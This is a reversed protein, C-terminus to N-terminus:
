DGAMWLKGDWATWANSGSMLMLAGRQDEVSSDRSYVDLRSFAAGSAGNLIVEGRPMMDQRAVILRTGASGGNVLGEAAVLGDERRVVGFKTFGGPYQGWPAVFAGFDGPRYWSNLTYADATPYVMGYLSIWASSTTGSKWYLQTPVVSMFGFSDASATTHHTQLTSGLGSAFQIVPHNDGPTTGGKILGRWWVFGYPDKWYAANAYVSGYSSWGNLFSSGSGAAGVETWTAVGAAPFAIGDLTFISGAGWGGRVLVDGNPKITVTRPGSSHWVGWIGEQDPRHGPPLNYVPTDPTVTGYGALGSLVVIGSILRRSRPMTWRNQPVQNKMNYDVWGNLPTLAVSGGYQSDGAHGFIRWNGGDRVMTVVRNGEPKWDGYWEYTETSLGGGSLFRVKAPGPGIYLPDLVALQFTDGLVFQLTAPTVARLNDIGAAAETPTAIEIIGPMTDTAQDMSGTIPWEVLNSPATSTASDLALTARWRSQDEYTANATYTVFLGWVEYLYTGMKRTFIRISGPTVQDLGYGWARVTIVDALRQTVHVLVSARKPSGIGGVGAVYFQAHAGNSDNLGDLVALRVYMNTPVLGTPIPFVASDGKAGKVSGANFSSGDERTMVLNGSLDVAGSVIQQDIIEQMRAATLGTAIGM